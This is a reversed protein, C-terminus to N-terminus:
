GHLPAPSVHPVISGVRHCSHHCMGPPASPSNSTPLKDYRAHPKSAAKSIRNVGCKAPRELATRELFNVDLM